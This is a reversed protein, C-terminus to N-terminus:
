MFVGGSACHVCVCVFCVCVCVCVCLCVFVCVCVCVCVFCVFCVILSCFAFFAFFACVFRVCCVYRTCLACCMSYAGHLILDSGAFHVPVHVCARTRHCGSEGRFTGERWQNPLPRSPVKFKAVLVILEFDVTRLLTIISLGVAGERVPPPLFSEPSFAIAVPRAVRL